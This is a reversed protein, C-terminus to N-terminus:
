SKERSIGDLPRISSAAVQVLVPRSNDPFWNFSKRARDVRHVIAVGQDTGGQWSPPLFASVPPSFSNKASVAIVLCCHLNKSANTKPLIM